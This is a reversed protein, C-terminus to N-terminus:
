ARVWPQSIGNILIEQMSMQKAPFHISAAHMNGQNYAWLVANCLVRRKM